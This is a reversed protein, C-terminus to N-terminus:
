ILIFLGRMVLAGLIGWFLVRHQYLAPVSFASFILVFVFLNDVSLSKELLYGTFFELAVEPGRWFYVGINFMLALAIWVISWLAAEKISVAHARRHFVGLDIALLAVVLLNFGIWLGVADFGM